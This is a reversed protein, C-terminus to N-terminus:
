LFIIEKDRILCINIGQKSLEILNITQSWSFKDRKSKVETLYFIGEKELIMDFFSMKDLKKAKKIPCVKCIDLPLIDREKDLCINGCEIINFGKGRMIEKAKKDSEGEYTLGQKTNARYNIKMSILIEKMTETGIRYKYALNTFPIGDMLFEKRIKKKVDEDIRKINHKKLRRYIFGKSVGLEKAIEKQLMGGQLMEKAKQIDIEKWNANEKGKKITRTGHIGYWKWLHDRSCFRNKPIIRKGGRWTGYSKEVRFKKGCYTCTIIESPKKYRLNGRDKRIREKILDITETDTLGKM